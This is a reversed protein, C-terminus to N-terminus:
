RPAHHPHDPLQSQQCWGPGAALLASYNMNTVSHVWSVLCPPRPSGLPLDATDAASTPAAAGPGLVVTTVCTCAVVLACGLAGSLEWAPLPAAAWCQKGWCYPSTDARVQQLRLAWPRSSKAGRQSHAHGPPSPSVSLEM